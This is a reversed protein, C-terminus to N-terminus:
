IMPWPASCGGLDGLLIEEHHNSLCTNFISFIM